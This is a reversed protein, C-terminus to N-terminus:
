KKLHDSLALIFALPYYHEPRLNYLSRSPAIYPQKQGRVSPEGLDTPTHHTIREQDITYTNHCYSILTHSGSLSVRCIGCTQLNKLKIKLCDYRLLWLSPAVCTSGRFSYLGVSSTQLERSISTSRYCQQAILLEAFEARYRRQPM